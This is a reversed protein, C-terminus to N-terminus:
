VLAGAHCIVGEVLMGHDATVTLDAHPLGAGLSGAAFRVPMLREAPGFRTSVSQRGIWKVPVACGEATLVMDGIQLAEVATDGSPTAIRTGEGYCIINIEVTDTDFGGTNAQGTVDFSFNQNLGGNAILDATTFSISMAGSASDLSFTMWAPLSPGVVTYSGDNNPSPGDSFNTSPQGSWNGSLTITDTGTVDVNYSYTGVLDNSTTDASPTGITANGNLTSGNAGTLYIGASAM